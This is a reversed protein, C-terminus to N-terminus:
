AYTYGCVRVCVCVCACVSWAIADDSGARRREQATLQVLVLSVHTGNVVVPEVQESLYTRRYTQMWAHMHVHHTHTFASKRVHINIRAYIHTHKYTRM